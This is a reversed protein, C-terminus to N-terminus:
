FMTKFIDIFIRFINVGTVLWLVIIGSFIMILMYIIKKIRDETKYKRYGETMNINDDKNENYNYDVENLYEQDIGPESIGADELFEKIINNKEDIVSKLYENEKMLTQLAYDDKKNYEDLELDYKKRSEENILAEYAENLEKVREEAKLKEKGEFLDPHNKKIMMRFVKKITDPSANKSVELLEYYDKM